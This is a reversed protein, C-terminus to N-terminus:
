LHKFLTIERGLEKGGRKNMRVHDTSKSPIEELLEGDIQHIGQEKLCSLILPMNVSNSQAKQHLVFAVGVFQRTLM